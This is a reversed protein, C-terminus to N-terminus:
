KLIVLLKEPPRAIVAKEGYVVVPRELLKPYVAIAKYVDQNSSQKSLGAIKYEEEGVRLLDHAAVGLMDHLHKVESETLAEHLYDRIEPQVGRAQLLALAERSKSCRPNHYITIKQM